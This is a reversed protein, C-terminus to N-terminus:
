LLMTHTWTEPMFKVYRHTTVIDKPTIGTASRATILQTAVKKMNAVSYPNKLKKGITTLKVEKM